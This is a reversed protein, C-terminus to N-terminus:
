IRHEGVNEGVSVERDAIRRQSAEAPLEGAPGRDDVAKAPELLRSRQGRSEVLPDRYGDTRLGKLERDGVRLEVSGSRTRLIGKFNRQEVRERLCRHHVDHGEGVGVGQQVNLGVAPDVGSGAHAQAPKGPASPRLGERGGDGDANVEGAQM